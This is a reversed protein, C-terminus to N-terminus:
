KVVLSDTTVMDVTDGAKLQDLGTTKKSLKLTKKKGDADEITM